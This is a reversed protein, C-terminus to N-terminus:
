NNEYLYNMYDKITEDDIDVDIKFNSYLIIGNKIPKIEDILVLDVNNITLAAISEQLEMSVIEMANKRIPKPKLKSNSKLHPDCRIIYKDDDIQKTLHHSVSTIRNKVFELHHKKIFGFVKTKSGDVKPICGLFQSDYTLTHINSPFM